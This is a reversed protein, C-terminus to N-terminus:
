NVAPLEFVQSGVQFDPLADEVSAEMGGSTKMSKRTCRQMQFRLKV